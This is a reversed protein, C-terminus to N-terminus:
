SEVTNDFLSNNKEKELEVTTASSTINQSMFVINTTINIVAKYDTSSSIFCYSKEERSKKLNYNIYEFHFIFLVKIFTWM